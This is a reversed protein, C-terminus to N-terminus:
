FVWVNSMMIVHRQNNNDNNCVMLHRCKRYLCRQKKIGPGGFKVKDKCMRCKGCDSAQCGSCLGCGRRRGQSLAHTDNSFLTRFLRRREEQAEIQIKVVRSM